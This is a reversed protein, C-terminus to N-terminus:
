NECLVVVDFITKVDVVFYVYIISRNTKQVNVNKQKFDINQNVIRFFNYVNM